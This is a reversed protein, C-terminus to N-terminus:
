SFTSFCMLRQLKCLNKVPLHCPPFVLQHKGPFALVVTLKLRENSSATSQRAHSFIQSRFAKDLSFSTIHTGALSSNLVDVTILNDIKEGHCPWGERLSISGWPAAHSPRQSTPAHTLRPRARWRCSVPKMPKKTETGQGDCEHLGVDAM